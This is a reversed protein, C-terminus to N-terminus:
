LLCAVVHMCITRTQSRSLTGVQADLQDNDAVIQRQLRCTLPESESGKTVVQTQGPKRLPPAWPIRTCLRFSFSALRRQASPQRPTARRSEKTSMSLTGDQVHSPHHSVSRSVASRRLAHAPPLRSTSSELIRNHCSTRFVDHETDRAGECNAQPRQIM